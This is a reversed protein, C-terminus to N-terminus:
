REFPRLAARRTRGAGDQGFDERIQAHVVAAGLGLDDLDPVVEEVRVDDGMGLRGTEVFAGQEDGHVAIDPETFDDTVSPFFDQVAEVVAESPFEDLLNGEPDTLKWIKSCAIRM